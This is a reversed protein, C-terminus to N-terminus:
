PKDTPYNNLGLPEGALAVKKEGIAFPIYVLEVTKPEIAKVKGPDFGKMGYSKPV